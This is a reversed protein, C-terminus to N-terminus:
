GGFLFSFPSSFFSPSPPFGPLADAAGLSPAGRGTEDLPLVVKGPREGRSRNFFAARFEGSRPEGGGRRAICRGRSADGLHRLEGGRPEFSVAGRSAVVSDHLADGVHRTESDGFNVAGRSAVVSDRSADGM